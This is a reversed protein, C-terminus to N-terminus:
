SGKQAAKTVAADLSELGRDRHVEYHGSHFEIVKGDPGIVIWLPLKAGAVRPDGFKRLTAGDDLLLPYSLNMFAKLRGASQGARRRAAPDSEAPEHVAVGYVAVGSKGRQRYLFDLFGTQGYPEELPADRYEWFHLVTVKDALAARDLKAGALGELKLDDPAPQGLSKERLSAVAGSRGKQSRLDQEIVKVLPGIVPADSLKGLDAQRGKLVELQADTWAVDQDLPEQGMDQRLKLLWEFGRAAATLDASSLARSAALEWQLEFEQGQGIFVREQLAVVVPSNKDVWYTRKVGYANRAEVRWAERDGRKEEGVVRHELRGLEWRADKALPGDDPALLPLVLPVHSKGDGRDYLLTPPTGAATRWQPGLDVRGLRDPWSWAGPGQEDLTWFVAAQRADGSALLVNVEFVKRGSDEGKIPTMSGRLTLSSGPELAPLPPAALLTFALFPAFALSMSAIGPTAPPRSAPPAEDTRNPPRRLPRMITVALVPVNSDSYRFFDLRSAAM